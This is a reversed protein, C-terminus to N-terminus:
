FYTVSTFYTYRVYERLKIAAYLMELMFMHKVIQKVGSILINFLIHYVDFEDKSVLFMTNTLLEVLIFTHFM